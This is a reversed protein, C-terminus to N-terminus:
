TSSCTSPLGQAVAARVREDAAAADPRLRQRIEKVKLPKSASYGAESMPKKAGEPDYKIDFKRNGWWPHGPPVTGQPRMYMGGLLKLMGTRDVCLNAAQRM